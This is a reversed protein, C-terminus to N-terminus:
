TEHLSGLTHIKSDKELHKLILGLYELSLCDDENTATTSQQYQKWLKTLKEKLSDQRNRCFIFYTKNLTPTFWLIKM